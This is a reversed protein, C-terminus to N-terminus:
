EIVEDARGLVSAPLELGLAKAAKLNIALEVRVSQQVPLGHPLWGGCRTTRKWVPPPVGTGGIGGVGDDSLSAGAKRRLRPKMNTPSLGDEM